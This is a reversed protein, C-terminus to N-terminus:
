PSNSLTPRFPTRPVMGFFDTPDIFDIPPTNWSPEAQFVAISMHVHPSIANGGSGAEGVTLPDKSMKTVKADVRHLHLYIVQVWAEETGGKLRYHHLVYVSPGAWDLVGSHGAEVGGTSRLDQLREKMFIFVARTFDNDEKLIRTVAANFAKLM